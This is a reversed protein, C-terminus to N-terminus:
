PSPSRPPCREAHYVSCARASRSPCPTSPPRPGRPRVLLLDCPNKTLLDQAMAFDLAQKLLRFAKACSKPAYGDKTMDQMWSSVDALSLDSLRVGGLYRDVWKVETRYGKITSPEVTGSKEKHKLWIGMYDMVTMSSGVAGGKLELEVILADRNREAAKRTKGAVTHFSRVSEGSLPDRHSLTAEWTDSDGRRRLGRSTYKM